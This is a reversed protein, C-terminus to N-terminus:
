RITRERNVNPVAWYGTLLKVTGDKIQKVIVVAARTHIHEMRVPNRSEEDSESKAGM